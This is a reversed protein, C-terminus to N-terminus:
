DNRPKTDSNPLAKTFGTNAVFVISTIVAALVMVCVKSKGNNKM